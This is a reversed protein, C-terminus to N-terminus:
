SCILLIIIILLIPLIILIFLFSISLFFSLFSFSIILRIVNFFFFFLFLLLVFILFFLSHYSHYYYYSSSSYSSYFLFLLFLLPLLLHLLFRRSAREGNDTLVIDGGTATFALKPLAPNFRVGAADPAKTGSKVTVAWVVQKIAAREVMPEPEPEPEPEGSELEPEPEPEPEPAPEPEPQTAAAVLDQAARANAAPAVELRKQEEDLRVFRLWTLWGDPELKNIVVQGVASLFLVILGIVLLLRLRLM